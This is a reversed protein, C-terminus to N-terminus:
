FFTIETPEAAKTGGGEHVQQEELMTYSLKLAVSLADVDTQDLEGELENVWHCLQHISSEVHLLIQNVRDQSQLQVLADSVQCSIRESSARLIGSSEEMAKAVVGFEELVERIKATSFEVAKADREVSAEVISSSHMIAQNIMAVKNNMQKGNEGARTSLKRVEDAVVAFGRGAEGARASEIAANLALLNTQDAVSTVEEAMKKLEGTIKMLTRTEELLQQKDKRAESLASIITNLRGESRSMVAVFGQQGGGSEGAGIAKNSAESSERIQTVIELFRETLQVFAQEMMTRSTEIQKAWVTVVDSNLKKLSHQLREAAAVRENAVAETQQVKGESTLSHCRASAVWGAIGGLVLLLNAEMLTGGPMEYEVLVAGCLGVVLPLGWCMMHSSRSM